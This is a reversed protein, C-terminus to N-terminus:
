VELSGLLASDREQIGMKKITSLPKCIISIGYADDILFARSGELPM